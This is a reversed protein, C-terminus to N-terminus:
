RFAGDDKFWVVFPIAGNHKSEEILYFISYNHEIQEMRQIKFLVV